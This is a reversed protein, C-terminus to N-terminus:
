ARSKSNGSPCFIRGEANKYIECLSTTIFSATSSKALRYSNGGGDHHASAVIAGLSFTPLALGADGPLGYMGSQSRNNSARVQTMAIPSEFCSACTLSQRAIASRFILIRYIIAFSSIPPMAVGLPWPTAPCTILRKSMIGVRRAGRSKSQRLDRGLFGHCTGGLGTKQCRSQISTKLASTVFTTHLPCCGRM